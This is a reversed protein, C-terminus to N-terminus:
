IAQNEYKSMLCTFSKQGGLSGACRRYDRGVWSKRRVLVRCLMCLISFLDFLEYVSVLQNTFSLLQAQLANKARVFVMPSEREVMNLYILKCDRALEGFKKDYM